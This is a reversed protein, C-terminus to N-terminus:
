KLVRSCRLAVGIRGQQLGSAVRSSGQLMGICGQQLGAAVGICGQQLGAAVGICGQQFGAAVGTSDEAVRNYTVWISSQELGTVIGSCGKQWGMAVKRFIWMMEVAAGSCVV